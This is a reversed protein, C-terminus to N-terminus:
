CHHSETLFEIQGHNRFTHLRGFLQRNQFFNAAILVLSEVQRRRNRAFFEGPQHLFGVFFLTVLAYTLLCM